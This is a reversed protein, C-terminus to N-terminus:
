SNRSKRRPRAKRNAAARSSSRSAKARRSRKTSVARPNFELALDLWSELVAKSRLGEPNVFVFGRMPRGTFDMPVCGPRSLASEYVEPDIRAMLRAREIGVCMKGDVMFCLGGMMRQEEFRIGRDGFIERVRGALQEDFAM